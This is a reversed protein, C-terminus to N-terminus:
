QDEKRPAKVCVYKKNKDEILLQRAEAAYECRPGFDYMKHHEVMLEMSNTATVLALIWMNTM